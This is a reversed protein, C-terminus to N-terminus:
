TLELGQLELGSLKNNCFYLYKNHIGGHDERMLNMLIILEVM